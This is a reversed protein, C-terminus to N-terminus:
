IIEEIFYRPRRKSEAYIKGIYEGIIGLSLLQIGSFFCLPIITSAWGYVVGDTFLKVFLAYCGLAISLIFFIIGLVSVLRLPVISFSTVGNWAFSLMKGLPYKSEGAFRELRDYEVVASKFGLLPVIGRLFLNVESFNLLAQIARSSLLRYDAHNYIIKVGMIEMLRYFGLATHKKFFSDKQRSKRVGYIVEAGARAKAVFEDIVSIDDQLDCDISIACDCKDAVYELGALLANQHGCNRSLKLSIIKICSEKSKKIDFVLKNDLENNLSATSIDIAVQRCRPPPTFATNQNSLDKLIAWTNDKSGDDVFVCFSEKSISKSEILQELKRSIVKHTEQLVEEENYCPIVVALIM